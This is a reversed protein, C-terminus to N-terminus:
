ECLVNCIIVTCINQGVTSACLISQSDGSHSMLARSRALLAALFMNSITSVKSPVVGSVPM